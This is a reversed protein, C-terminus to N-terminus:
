QKQNETKSAIIHIKKEYKTELSIEFLWIEPSIKCCLECEPKGYQLDKEDEMSKASKHLTCNQKKQFRSTKNTKSSNRQFRSIKVIFSESVHRSLFYDVFSLDNSACM